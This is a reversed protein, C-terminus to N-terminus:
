CIIITDVSQSLSIHVFPINHGLILSIGDFNKQGEQFHKLFFPLLEIKSDWQDRDTCAHEQKHIRKTSHSTKFTKFNDPSVQRSDSIVKGVALSCFIVGGDRPWNYYPKLSPM